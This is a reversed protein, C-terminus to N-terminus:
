ELDDVMMFFPSNPKLYNRVTNGSTTTTQAIATNVASRWGSPSGTRMYENGLKEVIEPTLNNDRIHTRLNKVVSQRKDRDISGYFSNLHIAERAKVEELPRTAMARAGVSRWTWVDDPGSVLNGQQTIANGSLLESMRAIPRSISQLSLAELMAKGTSADATFAASAVREGAQYAQKLLNFAPIANIGEGLVNPVRPQIEGRTTIAPGLNSPLGYIILDALEHPLARYLGTTLDVNQDSFNEGITESVYSFGPLSRAGFITGQALMMKGLQKFNRNEILRYIDQATTLMYTQFLGMAVGLTGQFMVPRQASAYNGIAQDMFDRAFTMIGAKSIGPYSEKAMYAGTQFALKRVMTESFNAPAVLISANVKELGKEVATIMGKDLSRAQSMVENAESVISKFLGAEEALKNLAKGEVSGGFRIGNYMTAAVGFKAKPDLTAGMFSKEMKRGMAGATLIPLSIANVYPQALEMFKLMSTAALSNSLALIRPTMNPAQSISQVHFMEKALHDDMAEFPNDIGRVKLENILNLYDQDSAGKGKGFISKTKSLIPEMLNNITTLGFEAVGGSVDSLKEWFVSQDLNSNGMLTNRMIKGPDKPKQIMKQILNLPQDRYSQQSLYSLQDMKQMVNSLQVDLMSRIGYGVYHDYGNALDVLVDANTSVIESASSGSHMMGSDASEMFIPDHRGQIKNYLAQNSKDVIEYRRGIDGPPIKSKWANVATQLEEQNKGFLLTTKDEVKDWVYTILKTKPNLPPSWFGRDNIPPRGSISNLSNRMEYLERGANQMNSLAEKVAPTKVEFPRGKYDVEVMNREKSLVKGTKPDKIINWPNEKSQQFFKNGRFEIYGSLSAQVKMATNLEVLAAPDKSISTFSPKM